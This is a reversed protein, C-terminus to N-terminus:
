TSVWNNPSLITGNNLDNGASWVYYDKYKKEGKQSKDFWAHKESTHNPM